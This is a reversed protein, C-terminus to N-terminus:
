IAAGSSPIDDYHALAVPGALTAVALTGDAAVFYPNGDPTPAYRARAAVLQRQEYERREAYTAFDEGTPRQERHRRSRRM